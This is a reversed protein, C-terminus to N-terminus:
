GGQWGYPPGASCGPAVLELSRRSAAHCGEIGMWRPAKLNLIGIWEPVQDMVNHWPWDESVERIIPFAWGDLKDKRACGTVEDSFDWKILLGPANHAVEPISLTVTMDRPQFEHNADHISTECVEVIALNGTLEHPHVGDFSAWSFGHIRADGSARNRGM